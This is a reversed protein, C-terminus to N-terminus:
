CTGNVGSLCPSIPQISFITGRGPVRVCLAITDKYTKEIIAKRGLCEEESKHGSALLSGSLMAIMIWDM